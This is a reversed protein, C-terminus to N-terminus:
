WTLCFVYRSLGGGWQSALVSRPYILPTSPQPHKSLVLTRNGSWPGWGATYAVPISGVIGGFVSCLTADVFGLGYVEQGISALTINQAATNISFWLVVIHIFKLTTKPTQENAKVRHIGRAELGVNLAPDYEVPVIPSNIRSDSIDFAIGKEADKVAENLAM